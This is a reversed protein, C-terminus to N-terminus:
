QSVLSTCFIISNDYLVIIIVSGENTKKIIRGNNNFNLCFKIKEIKIDIIQVEM